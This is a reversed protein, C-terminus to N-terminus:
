IHITGVNTTGWIVRSPELSWFRLPPVSHWVGGRYLTPNFYFKELLYRVHLQEFNMNWENCSSWEDLSYILVEFCQGSEKECVSPSRKHSLKSSDKSNQCDLVHFISSKTLSNTYSDGYHHKEKCYSMKFKKLRSILKVLVLTLGDTQGYSLM